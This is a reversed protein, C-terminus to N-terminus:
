LPMRQITAHPGSQARYLTMILFVVASSPTPMENEKIESQVEIPKRGSASQSPRSAATTSADHCAFTMRTTEAIRAM